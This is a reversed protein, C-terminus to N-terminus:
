AWEKRDLDPQLARNLAEALVDAMDDILEDVEKPTVMLAGMKPSVVEEVLQRREPATMGEVIEAFMLEDRLEDALLDLAKQVIGSALVVSPVGVAVVPVGVSDATVGQRRNKVGSGPHIGTDTVQVSTMLREVSRAALADVAVVLDPRIERVIGRVIDVTEIGTTGLVGPAVASVPRTRRRVDEPLFAALHRTVLLRDVVRPGLADPTANWNGLGVVLVHEGKARAVLPALVDATADTLASRVDPDRERFAPADLTVYYGVPKGLLRAGEDTTVTVETVKVGGAARERVRVGPVERADAGRVIERAEVAMDTRVAIPSFPM